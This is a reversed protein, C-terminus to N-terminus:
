SLRDRIIEKALMEALVTAPTGGVQTPRKTRWQGDVWVTVHVLNDAVAYAAVYDVGGATVKFGAGETATKM